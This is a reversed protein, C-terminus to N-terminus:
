VQDKPRIAAFAMIAFPYFGVHGIPKIGEDASLERRMNITIKENKTCDALGMSGIRCASCNCLSCGINKIGIGYRKYKFVTKILSVLTFLM